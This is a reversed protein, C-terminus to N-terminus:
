SAAARRARQFRLLLSLVGRMLGSQLRECPGAVEFDVTHALLEEWAVRAELRALSAGLCFHTGFGFVLHRNPRRGVDLREADVFRSDSRGDM